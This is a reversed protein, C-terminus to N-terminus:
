DHSQRKYLRFRNEGFKTYLRNYPRVDTKEVFVQVEQYEGLLYVEQDTMVDIDDQPIWRENEFILPLGNRIWSVEVAPAIYAVDKYTRSSTTGCGVLFIVTTAFFFRWGM